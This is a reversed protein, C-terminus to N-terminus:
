VAGVVPEPVHVAEPIAAVAATGEPATTGIMTRNSMMPPPGSSSTQAEIPGERLVCQTPSPEKGHKFHCALAVMAIVLAMAGFVIGIVSEDTKVTIIQPAQQPITEALYRLTREMKQNNQNNQNNAKISLPWM